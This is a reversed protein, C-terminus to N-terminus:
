EERKMEKFEDVTIQGLLLMRRLEVLLPETTIGNSKRRPRKHARGDLRRQHSAIADRPAWSPYRRDLVECIARQPEGLQAMRWAVENRALIARQRRTTGRLEYITIDYKELADAVIQQIRTPM